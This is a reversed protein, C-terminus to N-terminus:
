VAAFGRMFIGSAVQEGEGVSAVHGGCAAAVADSSSSLRNPADSRSIRTHGHPGVAGAHLNPRRMLTASPASRASLWICAVGMRRTRVM